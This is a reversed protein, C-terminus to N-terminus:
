VSNVATDSNTTVTYDSLGVLSVYIQWWVDGPWMSGDVVILEQILWDHGLTYQLKYQEVLTQETKTDKFVDLHVICRCGSSGNSILFGSPHAFHFRQKSCNRLVDPSSLSSSTRWTLVKSYQKPSSASPTSAEVLILSSARFFYLYTM